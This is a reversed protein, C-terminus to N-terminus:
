IFVRCFRSTFSPAVEWFWGDVIMPNERTIPAHRRLGGKYLGPGALREVARSKKPQCM